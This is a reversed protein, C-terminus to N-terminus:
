FTRPRPTSSYAPWLPAANATPSAASDGQPLGAAPPALQPTPGMPSYGFPLLWPSTGFLPQAPRAPPPTVVPAPAPPTVVSYTRERDFTANPESVMRTFAYNVLNCALADRARGSAQGFVAIITRRGNREASIVMNFGSARIYGTKGGDVGPCTSSDLLHNTNNWSGGNFSFSRVSLYQRYYQPFDTEIADFLKAMDRVTVTQRPEPLGNPNFFTSSTMGLQRAKANMMEAFHTRSGGVAEALVYAADNGSHVMMGRLAQDVTITRVAQSTSTRYGYVPQRNGKKDRRYRVVYRERTTRMMGLNTAPMGAATASVNVSQDLRLRGARLADFTLYATMLKTTSAPFVRTDANQEYLVRNNDADMVFIASTPGHVTAAAPMSTGTVAAAALAGALAKRRVGKARSSAQAPRAAGFFMERLSKRRPTKSAADDKRPTMVTDDKANTNATGIQVAFLYKAQAFVKRHALAARM